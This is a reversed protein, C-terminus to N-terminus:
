PLKLILATKERAFFIEGKKWEFGILSTQSLRSEPVSQRFVTLGLDLAPVGPSLPRGRSRKSAMKAGSLGVTQDHPAITQSKKPSRRESAKVLM